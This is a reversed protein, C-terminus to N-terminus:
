RAADAQPAPQYHYHYYRYRYRYYGYRRPARLENAVVGLVRAGAQALHRRAEALARHDTHGMRAVLVVGDVRAALVAADASVLAPPTDIVVCDYTGAVQELFRAFAASNLFDVPSPPTTGAFLVDLNDIVGPHLAQDLPVGLMVSDTLGPKKRHRYISHQRPKRLDGDLLLTRRGSQALVTALNSAITSKGEGAGASTVIIKRLPRDGAAFQINTRLVRFAEAVASDPRTAALPGTAPSAATSTVPERADIRAISAVVPFGHRELDEPQRVRTDFYDVTFAAAFGFTLGLLLALLA